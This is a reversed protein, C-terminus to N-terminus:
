PNSGGDMRDLQQLGRRARTEGTREHQKWTRRIGAAVDPDRYPRDHELHLLVARHRVSKGRLGLNELRAGLERDQGGSGMELDFGNVELLHRRWTSANNGNWSATTPTLADLVAAITPSRIVRLRRRGPKWGAQRLWRPDTVRGSRVDEVTIRDTLGQSLRVGGGSLFRGPEALRAHTAVFDDRPICDGDSFILYEADTALLARNLIETKRFGRDEHWVHQLDLKTESQLREILERTEPGSGDDAIILQFDKRSQRAYGWLVRELHAPQNYTALIVALDDSM